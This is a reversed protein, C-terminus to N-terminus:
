AFVAEDRSHPSELVAKSLLQSLKEAEAEMVAPIDSFDTDREFDVCTVGRALVTQGSRAFRSGPHKVPLTGCGPHAFLLHSIEHLVTHFQYWRPDSKRVLIKATGPGILVLGTVTEWDKDGLPEIAIQLGTVDAVRSVITELSAAPPLQLKRVLAEARRRLEGHDRSPQYQM